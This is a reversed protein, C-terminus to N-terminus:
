GHECRALFARGGASPPEVAYAPRVQESEWARIASATARPSDLHVAHGGSVHHVTATPFLEVLQDAGPPCLIRDESGFVFLIPVPISVMGSATEPSAIQKRLPPTFESLEDAVINRGHLTNAYLRVLEQDRDQSAVLDDAIERFEGSTVEPGPVGGMAVVGILSDPAGRKLAEAVVATGLSFAFVLTPRSDTLDRLLQGALTLIPSPAAEESGSLLEYRYRFIDAGSSEGFQELLPDWSRPGLGFGPILILRRRGSTM